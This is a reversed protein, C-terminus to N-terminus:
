FAQGSSFSLLFGRRGRPDRNLAYALDVRLLNKPTRPLGVRLGIGIDSKLRLLQPLGGSTANGADAFAVIGPSFLQLIERGLYIRHEVNAVMSRSGGFTHLRYGRMGNGGDAFFQVEPDLRWGAAIALRALTAAPHDTGYRHVYTAAASGIANRMGRDFRSEAAVGRLVFSSDRIRAGDAYSARVFASNSDASLARPSVALEAAFQRGLNFDEYRLDNNVFNLKIFDNHAHEYRAFLYRYDREAAIPQRTVGDIPGLDDRVLRIGATVRRAAEDNPDIARGFSATFIRHQQRFKNVEFSDAWIRDDQRFAQYTLDVAWPTAFSYFPRRFSFKRDFGDSSVGYALESRWQAANVAPDNYYIGYRTREVGRDWGLSLQRGTGILNTDTLAVGYTSTGGKMGAQAEPAITWSDQTTVSIDVLGDHPASAQVEASKVFPLKRLNRETEALREPRYVDGERFLLLKRIVSPRTEIHLTDALQYVAGRRAESESYVDLTHISITGIRLGEDALLPSASGAALVIAALFCRL